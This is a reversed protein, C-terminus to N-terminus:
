VSHKCELRRAAEIQQYVFSHRTRPRGLLRIFSLRLSLCGSRGDFTRLFDSRRIYHVSRPGRFRFVHRNSTLYVPPASKLQTYKEYPRSSSAFSPAFMKLNCTRANSKARATSQAGSTRRETSPFLRQAMYFFMSLSCRHRLAPCFTLSPYTNYYECPLTNSPRGLRYYPLVTPAFRRLQIVLPQRQRSARPRWAGLNVRIRPPSRAQCPQWSREVFRCFAGSLLGADVYLIVGRGAARRLFSAARAGVALRATALLAVSGACFSDTRGVRARDNEGRGRCKQGRERWGSFEHAIRNRNRRRGGVGATARRRGGESFVDPALSYRPVPFSLSLLALCLPLSLPCSFRRSAEERSRREVTSFLRRCPVCRSSTAPASSSFFSSSTSSVRVKKV